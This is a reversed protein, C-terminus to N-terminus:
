IKAPKNLVSSKNNEKKNKFYWHIIDRAIPASGSSGSCSHETLVSVTIEPKEAPAMAVFWGHHRQKLPRKQCKDHITEKSFAIVQSTGTKGAVKVEKTKWWRATGESGHVVKKLAKRITKFHEKAIQNNNITSSIEAQFSKIEKNNIDTIKKVIFPKVINGSTAIANYAVAMQLPTVLIFGQGIAHVLDEGPQWAEGLHKKKWQSDPIFGAVEGDLKINTKQGLHFLRAYKAIKDIGLEIGIKYFFVNASRELASFLNISGHGTKRYDHYTRRGFIFEKPSEILTQETLLGEQLAALTIIPKFTSGPAYHEQIVKNILPKTPDYALNMWKSASLGMSFINPDYSPYSVWALIEGNNKMVIASGYRPGIKDKRLFSSYTKEQLDKDITLILNRGPIPKKPEFSWLGAINSISKRNHVDVEVFEFGDIGRLEYEWINELGSKGIINGSQFHLRSKYKKNFTLIQNKTIEGLYGFLHAGNKNLPYHRIITTQIDLGTYDWQLFKLGVVQNFTLHKKIIVPRFPGYKKEGSKVKEIIYQPAIQIITSIDKAAEELNNIYQPTITLKLDLFNDVLIKNNRDFILGRPAQIKTEKLRNIESSKRLKEGHIIQLYWLRSALILGAGVMIWSVWKWRHIIEQLEEEMRPLTERM